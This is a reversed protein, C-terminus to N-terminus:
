KMLKLKCNRRTKMMATKVIWVLSNRWKNIRIIVMMQKEPQIKVMEKRSFGKNRVRILIKMKRIDKSSIEGRKKKNKSILNWCSSSKNKPINKM